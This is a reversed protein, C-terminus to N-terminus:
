RYISRFYEADLHFPDRADRLVSRDIRLQRINRLRQEEEENLELLVLAQLAM